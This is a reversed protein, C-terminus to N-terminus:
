FSMDGHEILKFEDYGSGSTKMSIVVDADDHFQELAEILDFVKM